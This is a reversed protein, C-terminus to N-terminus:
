GIEAKGEKSIPSNYPPHSRSFLSSDLGMLFGEGVSNKRVISPQLNQKTFSSSYASRIMAGGAWIQSHSNVPPTYFLATNHRGASSGRVLNQQGNFNRGFSCSSCRNFNYSLILKQSCLPCKRYFGYAHLQIRLKLMLPTLIARIPSILNGLGWEKKPKWFPANM